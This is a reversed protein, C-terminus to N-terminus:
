ANISPASAPLKSYADFYSNCVCEIREMLDSMAAEDYPPGKLKKAGRWFHTFSNHHWFYAATQPHQDFLDMHELAYDEDKLTVRTRSDFNVQAALKEQLITHNSRSDLCHHEPPTLTPWAETEGRTGGKTAKVSSLPTCVTLWATFISIWESTM